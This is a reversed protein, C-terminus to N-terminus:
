YREDFYEAGNIFTRRLQGRFVITDIRQSKVYAAFLNPAKIEFEQEAYEYFLGTIPDNSPERIIKVKYTNESEM